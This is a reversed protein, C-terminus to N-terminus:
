ASRPRHRSDAGCSLGPSTTSPEPWGSPRKKTYPLEPALTPAPSVHPVFSSVVPMANVASPEKRIDSNLPFVTDTNSGDEPRYLPWKPVASGPLVQNQHAGSDIATAGGTFWLKTRPFSAALSTKTP